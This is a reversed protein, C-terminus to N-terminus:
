FPKVNQHLATQLGKGKLVTKWLKEREKALREKYVKKNTRFATLFDDVAGDRSDWPLELAWEKENLSENMVFKGRLYEQTVKTGQKYENVCHNYVWRYIDM